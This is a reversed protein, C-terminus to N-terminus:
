MDPATAVLFTFLSAAGVVMGGLAAAFHSTDIGTRAVAVPAARSRKPPGSRMANNMRLMQKSPARSSSQRRALNAIRQPLSSLTRTPQVSKWAPTTSSSEQIESCRRKAPQMEIEAEVKRAYSDISQLADIRVGPAVNRRKKVDEEQRKKVYEEQWRLSMLKPHPRESDGIQAPSATQATQPTSSLINSLSPVRPVPVTEVNKNQEDDPGHPDTFDKHHDITVSAEVSPRSQAIDDEPLSERPPCKPMWTPAGEYEFLFPNKMITHLSPLIETRDASPVQSPRGTWSELSKPDLMRPSSQVDSSPQGYSLKALRPQSARGSSSIGTTNPTFCASFANLPPLHVSLPNFQTAAHNTDTRQVSRTLPSCRSDLAKPPDSTAPPSNMEPLSDLADDLIIVDNRSSSGTTGTNTSPVPKRSSTVGFLSDVFSWNSYSTTSNRPHFSLDLAQSSGRTAHNTQSFSQSDSIELDILEAPCTLRASKTDKPGLHNPSTDSAVSSVPTSDLNASKDDGPESSSLEENTSEMDWRYPMPSAVHATVPHRRETTPKVFQTSPLPDFPDFEDEEDDMMSDMDDDPASYGRNLPSQLMEATAPVPYQSDISLRYQKAQYLAGNRDM